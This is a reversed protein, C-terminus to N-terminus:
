NSRGLLKFMHDGQRNKFCINEARYKLCNMGFGDGPSQWKAPTGQVTTQSGWAWEGGASFDLNAQVSLWYTGAQLKVHSPLKCSFSGFYDKCTLAPFDAVVTGPEPRGSRQKYFTIHVSAAPGFGSFYSGNADVESVTWSKGAPVTFDDAAQNDYVDLDAEFNQSIIGVTSDNATQDYLVTSASGQAPAQAAASAGGAACLVLAAVATLLFMKKM